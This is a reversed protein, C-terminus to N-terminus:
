YGDAAAASRVLPVRIKYGHAYPPILDRLLAPNLERLHAVSTGFGRAIEALLAGGKVKVERYSPSEDFDVQRIGYAIANHAIFAVAMFRGLLTRTPVPLLHTFRNYNSGRLSWFRDIAATGGNWGVIAVPWDYGAADHLEALYEAAARTSLIPDRREDVYRDIRLGYHKAIVGSLQWPGRGRRSFASEAFALYVLDDPVGYSRLLRVMEPLYPRSREFASELQDPQRLFDHLYHQVSQNLVIPFPPVPRPETLIFPSDAGKAADLSSFASSDAPDNAAIARSVAWPAVSLLAIVAAIISRRRKM